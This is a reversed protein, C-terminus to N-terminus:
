HPLCGDAVCFGSWPEEEDKTWAAGAVCLVVGPGLAVLEEPLSVHLKCGEGTDPFWVTRRVIVGHRASKFHESYLQLAARARGFSLVSRPYPLLSSRQPIAIRSTVATPRCRVNGRM